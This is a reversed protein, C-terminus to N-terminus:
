APLWQATFRIDEAALEEIMRDYLPGEILAESTYLGVASIDGRAIMRAAIAGTFATTRAMSTFGLVRDMHDVMDVRYHARAGNRTGILDVRFLTIDSEDERLRVEPYLLTDLFTKPAIATGGIEIPTASLFGLTKLMTIKEGYGPWRITKQSGETIAAFEPMDLLWPMMGEHWSELMGLGEFETPEVASYRAVVRAAGQEVALADSDRLPLQSGGFVIRYGLPGAAVSPVGGCKIHLQEVHEFEAAMRRAVIETLGPELGCGLLILGQADLAAQKLWVMDADDPIALDVIPVHAVLAARFAHLSASWPLAALVVSFGAFLEAAAAENALDLTITRLRDAGPVKALMAAAAQLKAPDADCLAVETVADDKLANYAAAPGMLGSGLILIKM